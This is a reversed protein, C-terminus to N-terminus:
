EVKEDNLMKNIQKLFIDLEKYKLSGEVVETHIPFEKKLDERKFMDSTLIKTYIENNVAPKGTFRSYMAIFDKYAQLKSIM